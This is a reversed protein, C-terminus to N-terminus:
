GEAVFSLRNFRAWFLRRIKAGIGIGQMGIPRWSSNGSARYFLRLMLRDHLAQNDSIFQQFQQEVHLQEMKVLEDPVSLLCLHSERRIQQRAEIQARATDPNFPVTMAPM